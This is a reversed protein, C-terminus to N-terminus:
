SVQLGAEIGMAGAMIMQPQRLNVTGSQGIGVLVPWPLDIHLQEIPQEMLEFFHFPTSPDADRVVNVGPIRGGDVQTQTDEVPSSEALGFAGDFEMYLVIMSVGNGSQKHDGVSFGVVQRHGPPIRHLFGTHKQHVAGVAVEGKEM